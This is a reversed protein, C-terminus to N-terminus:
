RDSNNRIALTARGPRRTSGVRASRISTGAVSDNTPFPCHSSRTGAVPCEILPLAETGRGKPLAVVVVVAEVPWPPHRLPPCTIRRPHRHPRPPPSCGRSRTPVRGPRLIAASSSSTPSSSSTSGVVMSVCMVWVCVCSSTIERIQNTRTIPFFPFSVFLSINNIKSSQYRQTKKKNRKTHRPEYVSYTTPM